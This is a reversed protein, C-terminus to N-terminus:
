MWMKKSMFSYMYIAIFAPLVALILLFTWWPEIFVNLSSLGYIQLMNVIQWAQYAAVIIFLAQWFYVNLIKKSKIFGFFGLLMIIMILEYVYDAVVPTFGDTKSNNIYYSFFYLESLVYGTYIIFLTTWIMGKNKM